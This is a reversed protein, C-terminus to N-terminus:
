PEDLFGARRLDVLPHRAPKCAPPHAVYRAAPSWSKCEDHTSGRGGCLSNSFTRMAGQRPLQFTLRPQLEEQLKQGDSGTLCPDGADPSIDHITHEVCKSRSARPAAHDLGPGANSGRDSGNAGSARSTAGRKRTVLQAQLNQRCSAETISRLGTPRPMRACRPSLRQGPVFQLHMHLHLHLNLHPHASTPTCIQRQTSTRICIFAPASM